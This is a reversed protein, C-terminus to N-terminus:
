ECRLAAMPDVQMARRAPVYSAALAVAVMAIVAIAVPVIPNVPLTIPAEAQSAAVTALVTAAYSKAWLAAPVGVILGASVLGLASTLVMQIVDRGTAGIAIRVGIENTRRTVTYALLGYLGIAVLMAALVGFLASLMAILREPLISADVQEALTTIRGIAVNPLTDHIVSRLHPVVSMPPMGTRLVFTWRNGGQFANTYVTRPPTDHVDNYKADGVVGIIELPRAQGEFTFQRGLPSSAGFYYRAMAQNVIAVRPGGEDEPAFDRGAIFPTGLTEFYKPAVNNLSVRRRDDPSESFGQINVFQGGGSGSIPTMAAFTASRVGAVSAMRDLMQRSSAGIQERNYGSRSWDLTIQLVSQSQFGLGVTRLDTLHRVFLAAGSLLIVSLAVQAVVLGRGFRRWRRTEAATGIERLSSSPASVFAHWAPVLGSLVTTTIAAGAAFALVPLDLHVPIQLPQPMGVPSRGSGIITVLAHAGFYALLVGCGGGLTSLLLSETLVQRIVRLRGAGLAVRVAMERRRAASRALLMSAVNVSALLLLVGVAAMMLRLTSAFRDRLISLGAGAPEVDTTASRWQVDHGRAELEVLRPRDLVRMEAAAQERTVGRKLHGVVSVLASGDLLRSPQELRPELAIPMWLPPDMGLQLGFFEPRTVGIITIPVNDVVLRTGLVAPDLNFRRQWYSWTIVAVAARPSGIQSEEPGILHGIAPQLGLAEFFNGSVYTGDVVEPGYAPGTVQFHGPEASMAVLDSFVHNQDRFREYHKWGYMNLRPDRPYKFLLEVLQGPERVPLSRLMLTDVLSFIATNAGIGSALTIVVVATFGPNRACTRLAYRVDRAVDDLWAGHRGSRVREKTQEVGGLDIVAARRAEAPSAGDRMRDAAAMDVFAQMEDHLDQEASDRRVIWRLMSMLRHPLTM